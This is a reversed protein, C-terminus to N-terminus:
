ISTTQAATLGGAALAQPCIFIINVRSLKLWIGENISVECVVAPLWTSQFLMVAPINRKNYTHASIKMWPKKCQVVWIFLTTAIMTPGLAGAVVIAM